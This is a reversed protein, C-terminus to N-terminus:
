YEMKVNRGRASPEEVILQEASGTGILEIASSFDVQDDTYTRM